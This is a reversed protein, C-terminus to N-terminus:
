SNTAFTIKISIASSSAVVLLSDVDDSTDIALPCSRRMALVLLRSQFISPKPQRSRHWAEAIEIM